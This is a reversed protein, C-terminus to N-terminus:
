VAVDEAEQHVPHTFSRLRPAPVSSAKTLKLCEECLARGGRIVVAVCDHQDCRTQGARVQGNKEM